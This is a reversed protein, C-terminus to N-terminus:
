HPTIGVVAVDWPPTNFCLLISAPPDGVCRLKQVWGVLAPLESPNDWRLVEGCSM